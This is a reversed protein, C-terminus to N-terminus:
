RWANGTITWGASLALSGRCDLDSTSVQWETYLQIIGSQSHLKHIDRTYGSGATFADSTGADDTGACLYLSQQGSLTGTTDSVINTSTGTGSLVTTGSSNLLGSVETIGITHNINASFNAQVWNVGSVPDTSIYTWLTNGANSRKSWLSYLNSKDDVINTPTNGSNVFWCWIKSGASTPATFTSSIATLSAGSQVATSQVIVPNSVGGGGGAAVPLPIATMRMNAWASPSALCVLFAFIIKKM